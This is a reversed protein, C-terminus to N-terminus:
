AITSSIFRYGSSLKLRRPLGLKMAQPTPSPVALRNNSTMTESHLEVQLLRLTITLRFFIEFTL